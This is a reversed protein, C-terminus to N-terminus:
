LKAKGNKFHIKVISGENNIGLIEVSNSAIKKLSEKM